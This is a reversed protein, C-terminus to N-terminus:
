IRLGGDTGGGQHTGGDAMAALGGPVREVEGPMRPRPSIAAGARLAADAVAAKYTDISLPVRLRGRLAELVPHTGLVWRESDAPLAQRPM